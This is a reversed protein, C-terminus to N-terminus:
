IVRASGWRSNHQAIKGSCWYPHSSFNIFEDPLCIEAAKHTEEGSVKQESRWGLVYMCVVHNSTDYSHLTYIWKMMSPKIECMKLYGSFFNKKPSGKRRHEQDKAELM